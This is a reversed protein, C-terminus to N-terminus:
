FRAQLTFNFGLRNPNEFVRQKLQTAPDTVLRTGNPDYQYYTEAILAFMELFDQRLALKTAIAPLVDQGQPLIVVDGQNRVVLIAPTSDVPNVASTPPKYSAPRDVGVTLGITTGSREVFYDARDCCFSPAFKWGMGLRFIKFPVLSPQNVLLVATISVDRRAPLPLQRVSSPLERRGGSGVAGSQIRGPGSKGADDGRRYVASMLLWSVGPTYIPKTLCRAASNPDNRYLATDASMSPSLGDWASLQASVGFTQVPLRQTLVRPITGRDFFGGNAELRLHGPVLDVGAGGLTRVGLATGSGARLAAGVDQCWLVCVLSRRRAAGASGSGAADAASKPQDSRRSEGKFFIPSGGWSLRWSYGLRMRDANLPFATVSINTRRTRTPDFYYNVKIYSGDDISSLNVDSFQLLRLVYAAEGEWRQRQIAKYLM